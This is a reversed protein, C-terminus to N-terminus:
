NIRGAEDSEAVPSGLLDTHIYIVVPEAVSDVVSVTIVESFKSCVSQAGVDNLCIQAKYQYSGLPNNRHSSIFPPRGGVATSIYGYYNWTLGNDRSEHIRYEHNAPVNQPANFSIDYREKSAFSPASLAPPAIAEVVSVSIVDSLGSCHTVNATHEVCIEGQYLYNGPEKDRFVSRLPPEGGLKRSIHGIYEWTAGDDSSEHIRYDHNEPTSEVADFNVAYANSSAIAPATLKPPILGGTIFAYSQSPEKSMYGSANDRSWVHWFYLKGAVLATPSSAGQRITQGNENLTFTSWNEDYCVESAQLNEAVLGEAYSFQTDSIWLEYSIGSGLNEWRFCPNSGTVSLLPVEYLEPAPPILFSLNTVSQPPSYDSCYETGDLCVRGRYLYARGDRNSLLFSVYSQPKTAFQEDVEKWTAGDDNSEYLFYKYNDAAAKTLEFRIEYTETNTNLTQTLRPPNKPPYLVELNEESAVNIWGGEQSSRVRGPHDSKDVDELELGNDEFPFDWGEAGYGKLVRLWHIRGKGFRDGAGISLFNQIPRHPIVTKTGKAVGDVFLTVDGISDTRLLYTHTGATDVEWKTIVEARDHSKHSIALGSEALYLQTGSSGPSRPYSSALVYNKDPGQYTWRFELDDTGNITIPSSSNVTAYDDIGDFELAFQNDIEPLASVTTSVITSSLSCSSNNCIEAKYHYSGITKKKLSFVFPLSHGLALSKSGLHVWTLGEDNSEYVRYEHDEPTNLPMNFQLDYNGALDSFLPTNLSPEILAAFARVSVDSSKASCITTDVICQMAQYSYVSDSDKTIDIVGSRIDIGGLSQATFSAIFSWETDSDSREFLRIEQNEPVVPSKVTVSYTDGHSSSSSITPAQSPEIHSGVVDVWTEGITPQVFAPRQSSWDDSILASKDEFLFNWGPLTASGHTYRHFHSYDVRLWHIVGKGFMERTAGISRFGQIPYDIHLTKEGMSEGDVLLTVIGNNGMKLKYTHTGTADFLWQTVVGDLHFGLGVSSIFIHNQGETSIPTSDSLVINKELGQYSWKFAINAPGDITIPHLGNLMVYDDVGNLELAFNDVIINDINVTTIDSYPSCTATGMLCIVARYQYTDNESRVLVKKFPPQDGSQKSMGTVYQWSSTGVTREYLRYEYNAPTETSADFEIEYQGRVENDVLYSLTPTQSITSSTSASALLLLYIFLGIRQM